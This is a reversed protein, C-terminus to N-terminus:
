QDTFDAKEKVWRDIMSARDNDLDLFKLGMGPEYAANPMYGRKWVVEAMCVIPEDSGPLTFEIRYQEKENKPSITQVFLGARSVDKAYGFFVQGGEKEEGKVRTVLIPVRLYKRKNEVSEATNM